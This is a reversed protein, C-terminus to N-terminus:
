PSSREGSHIIQIRYKNVARSHHFPKPTVLYGRERVGSLPRRRLCRLYPLLKPAVHESAARLLPTVPFPAAIDIGVCVLGIWNRASRIPDFNVVLIV